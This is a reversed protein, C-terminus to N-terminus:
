AREAIIDDCMKLIEDFGSKLIEACKLYAPLPYCYPDFVPSGILREYSVANKGGCARAYEENVAVILDSELSMRVTFSKAKRKTHKVGLVTLAQDANETLYDNCAAYLGASSVSFEGGRKKEKLYDKFMFEAMPSRCTNGACVFILKFKEKASDNAVGKESM